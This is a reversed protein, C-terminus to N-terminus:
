LERNFKNIEQKFDEETIEDVCLNEKIDEKLQEKKIKKVAVFEIPRNKIKAKYV